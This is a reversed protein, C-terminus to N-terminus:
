VGLAVLSRDLAELGQHGPELGAIEDSLRLRPRQFVVVAALVSRGCGTGQAPVLRGPPQGRQYPREVEAGIGVRDTRRLGSHPTPQQQHCLGHRQVSGATRGRARHDTGIGVCQRDRRGIAVKTQQAHFGEVAFRQAGALQLGVPPKNGARTEIHQGAAIGFGDAGDVGCQTRVFAVPQAPELRLVTDFQGVDVAADRRHALAYFMGVRRVRHQAACDVHGVRQQRRQDPQQRAQGVLVAEVEAKGVLGQALTHAAVTGPERRLHRQAGGHVEAQREGVKASGHGGLTGFHTAVAGIGGIEDRARGFQARQGRRTVRAHQRYSHQEHGVEVLRTRQRAALEGDGERGVALCAAPEVIRRLERALLHRGHLRLERLQQGSGVRVRLTRKGFQRQEVGGGAFAHEVVPVRSGRRRADVGAHMAEDGLLHCARGLVRRQRALAARQAVEFQVPAGVLQTPGSV